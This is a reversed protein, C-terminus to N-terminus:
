RHYVDLPDEADEATELEAKFRAHGEKLEDEVSKRDSSFLSHLKKASRGSALPQINEKSSFTPREARNSPFEATLSVKQDYIQEVDVGNTTTQRGPTTEDDAMAVGVKKARFV